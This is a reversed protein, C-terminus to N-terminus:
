LKHHQVFQISVYVSINGGESIHHLFYYFTRGIFDFLKVACCFADESIIKFIMKLLKILAPNLTPRNNKRYLCLFFLATMSKFISDIRHYSDRKIDRTKNTSIAPWHISGFHCQCKLGSWFIKAVLPHIIIHDGSSSTEVHQGKSNIFTDAVQLHFTVCANMNSSTLESDWLLYLGTSSKTISREM